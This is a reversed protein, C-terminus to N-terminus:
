AINRVNRISVTWEIILFKEKDGITRVNQPNIDPQNQGPSCLEVSAVSPESQGIKNRAYVRFSFTAWPSMKVRAISQSYPVQVGFNWQDPNFHTRYEVIFYQIPASNSSGVIWEVDANLQMCRVKISTPADPKGPLYLNYM